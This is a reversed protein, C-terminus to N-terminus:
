TCPTTDSNNVPSRSWSPGHCYCGHRRLILAIEERMEIKELNKSKTQNITLTSMGGFCGNKPNLSIKLKKQKTQNITLKPKLNHGSTIPLFILITTEYRKQMGQCGVLKPLKKPGPFHLLDARLHTTQRITLYQTSNKAAPYKRHTSQM